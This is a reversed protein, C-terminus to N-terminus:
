VKFMKIMKKVIQFNVQHQLFDFNQTLKTENFNGYKQLVEDFVSKAYNDVRERYLFILVVGAIELGLLSIMVTFFKNIIFKFIM